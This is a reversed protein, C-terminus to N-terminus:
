EAGLLATEVGRAALGRLRGPAEIPTAEAGRLMGDPAIELEPDRDNEPPLM